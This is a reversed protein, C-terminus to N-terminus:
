SLPKSDNNNDPTLSQLSYSVANPQRRLSLLLTTDNEGQMEWQSPTHAPIIEIDGHVATGRYRKGGRRCALKAPAGVHIGILVNEVGPLDLAGRPDRRLELIIGEKTRAQNLLKPLRAEQLVM